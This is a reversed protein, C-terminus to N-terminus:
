KKPSYKMVSNKFANGREEYGNFMDFSSTGPSFLVVGSNGVLKLALEVAEDIDNSLHCDTESKWEEEVLFKNEGFLVVSSVNRKVTKKIESYSIGKNKGGAILIIKEDKFSNLASAVAHLNTAKSDNIFQVGNSEWVLECRHSPPTYELISDLIENSEYGHIRAVAIAAMLNEANHLGRLKTLSQDILERDLNKIKTGNLWYDNLEDYASFTVTKAKLGEIRDHGNVIAWDENSQNVFIKMKANKYEEISPYRDLHDSAFNTWVAIHPCFQNIAELQFSSIELVITSYEKDESIIDAFPRGHNGGVAVTRGCGELIKGILEVTTTKGNTGTVGVIESECFAYAFEIESIITIGAERFPKVIEWDLSIGPSIVVLEYTAPDQCIGEDGIYVKIGEEGLADIKSVLDDSFGTDFLNVDAGKDIALRSAAIGSKGCGLVALRKDKYNM